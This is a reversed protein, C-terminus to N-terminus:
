RKMNIYQKQLRSSIEKTMLNFIKSVKVSDLAGLIKLAIDNEQVSLLQAAAQPRMNSIVEVMHNLRKNKELDQKDLCSIIKSQKKRFDKISKEFNKKMLEIKEKERKLNLEILKLDEEKKFLEKSFGLIKSRGIKKLKKELEKMVYDKLQKDTYEKVNKKKTNKGENKDTVDDQSFVQSNNFGIVCFILIFIKKLKIFYNM